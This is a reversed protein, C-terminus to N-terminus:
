SPRPPNEEAEYFDTQGKGAPIMPLVNEGGDCVVDLLGPGPTELLERVSDTLDAPNEVRKGPIGYVKALASFDPNYEFVTQSYRKDFFFEQWQRVMGLCGNDIILIKVPIDYQRVTALEQLTMQFSGDGSVLAVPLGTGSLAAGVSAPLGFGMTGLGGSSLFRRPKTSTVFQAAWMQHQGVDTVIIAEGGTAESLARIAAQPKILNGRSEPVILPHESKLRALRERWAPKKSPKITKALRDLVLKLDGAVPIDVSVRKGIEAPDVDVHAVRALPAFGRVDGVVRDDFRVGLGIILDSENIALNAYKAGHMGPLGLSLERDDPFVGKAQLTSVVAIDSDEALKLLTESVGEGSAGGGVYFVPRRSRSIAGALAEVEGDDPVPRPDYGPISVTKKGNSKAPATQIDRPVDILVPGPRGTGALFFAEALVDELDAPNKVLYNYKTIPISIGYIDAEQFGDTGLSSTNVQGTIAVLPVSDMHANALGTVLNTAGPGSTAIVVGTRGSARAFGDAAHAAGQEHRALVHKANGDHLADYLPIVAGGPYGFVLDVGNREFFDVILEAGNAPARGRKKKTEKTM